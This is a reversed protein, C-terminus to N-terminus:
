SDKGMDNYQKQTNALSVNNQGPGNQDLMKLEDGQGQGQGQGESLKKYGLFGGVGVIAIVVVIAVIAFPGSFLAALDQLPGTVEAKSTASSSISTVKKLTSEESVQVGLNSLINNTINNSNKKEQICKSLLATANVQNIRNIKISGQTEAGVVSLSNNAKLTAICEQTDNLNLNNNIANQVVNQINKRTDTVNTFNYDNSVKSKSNASGLSLFGSSAKAATTSDIKDLVDTSFSNNLQSLYTSAIGSAVQNSYSSKQVCDFSVTASNSQNVDGIEINEGVKLNALALNNSSSLGASCHAAQSVVTNTQFDNVSKNLLEVDSKNVVTTKYKNNVESSSSSCGVLCFHETFNETKDKIYSYLIFIIYLLLLIKLINDKIYKKLKLIDM